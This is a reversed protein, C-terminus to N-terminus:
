NLMTKSSNQVSFWTSKIGKRTNIIEPLFGIFDTRDMQGDTQRQRDTICKGWSRSQPNKLNKAHPYKAMYVLFHGLSLKSFQTQQRSLQTFSLFQFIQCKLSPLMIKQAKFSAGYSGIHNQPFQIDPFFRSRLNYVM